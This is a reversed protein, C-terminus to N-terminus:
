EAKDYPKLFQKDVVDKVFTPYKIFFNYKFIRNDKPIYLLKKKYYIGYQTFKNLYMLINDYDNEINNESIIQINSNM